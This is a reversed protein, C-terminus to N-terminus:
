PAQQMESCSSSPPPWSAADVAKLVEGALYAYGADNPHFGDSSYNSAQYSRADCLLDIVLVGQTALRNAGATSFGVSLREIWRKQQATRGAMFPLGAFNPLNLVIIRPNNARGRVMALLSALDSAFSAVQRDIYANADAPAAAGRDIATGITNADNGGAFITVLTTDKPVFPAEEELFNSQIGLGYQNGLQQTAPSLVAGPIGMNTLTMTHGDARLQRAVRPVYGMGDRCDTFPICPLSSGVGAADSAGIATYWIAATPPVPTPSGTGPSESSHGCAACLAALALLPTVFQHCRSSM